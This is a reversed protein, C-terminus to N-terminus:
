NKSTKKFGELAKLDQQPHRKRPALKRWNHRELLKYFAANSIEIELEKEFTKKLEGVVLIGGNEAEKSHKEIFAKEKELTTHARYRGGKPQPKAAGIGRKFYEGHIARVAAVSYGTVEAIEIANMKRHARLYLAQARKFENVNKASKMAIFFLKTDKTSIAKQPRM